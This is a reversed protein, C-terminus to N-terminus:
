IAVNSPNLFARNTPLQANDNRYIWYQRWLSHFQLSLFFPVFNQFQPSHLIFVCYFRPIKEQVTWLRSGENYTNLLIYQVNKFKSSHSRAFTTVQSMFVDFITFYLIYTFYLTIWKGEWRKASSLAAFTRELSKICYTHHKIQWVPLLSCLSGQTWISCPIKCCYQRYM